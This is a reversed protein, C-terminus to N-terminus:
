RIRAGITALHTLRDTEADGACWGIGRLVLVRFLPDDFTWTYHGPISVFVRGNGHQYTWMLPRPSDEEPADALVHIRSVDGPLNWYSEDELHLSATFGRTIPHAADRIALDLPGHRFKSAGDRWALGVREAWADAADRGNVAYHLLVIGGGRSQYADIEKAKDASWQPNASYFVAVDAGNWQAPTPWGDAQDVKVGDALGLLTTWRKQWLPYDHEGIGHDKPGAVLLVSLRRAPKTSPPSSKLIAEVEGRSRPPPAGKRQLPAPVLPETLLFTLLDRTKEAGIGEALGTPMLSLRSPTIAKVDALAIPSKEGAADGRVMIHTADANRVIGGLVRGDKMKVMSAIYDPNLAASPDHIDRLVSDYDRHILNSLDPGIDGGAGSGRVRHCKYCAAQNGFFVDRGRLWDGGQL